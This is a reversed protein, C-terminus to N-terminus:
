CDREASGPDSLVAVRRSRLEHLTLAVLNDSTSGGDAILSCEYEREQECRRCGGEDEM